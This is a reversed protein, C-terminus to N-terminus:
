CLGMSTRMTMPRGAGPRYHASKVGVLDEPFAKIVSAVVQPHMNKVYQESRLDVMGQAAINLYALVRCVSKDIVHEKFHSIRWGKRYGM